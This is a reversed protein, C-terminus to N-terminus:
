ACKSFYQFSQQEIGAVLSSLAHLSVLFTEIDNSHLLLEKLCDCAGIEECLKKICNSDM